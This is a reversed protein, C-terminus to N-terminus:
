LYLMKLPKKRNLERSKCLNSRNAFQKKRPLDTTLFVIMKVNEGNNRLNAVQYFLVLFTQGFVAIFKSKGRWKFIEWGKVHNFPQCFIVIGQFDENRVLKRVAVLYQKKDPVRHFESVAGCGYLRIKVFICPWSNSSIIKVVSGTERPHIEQVIENTWM